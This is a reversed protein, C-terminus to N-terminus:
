EHRRDTMLRLRPAAIRDVHTEVGPDGRFYGSLAKRKRDFPGWWHRMM